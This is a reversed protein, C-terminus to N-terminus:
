STEIDLFTLIAHVGIKVVCKKLVAQVKHTRTKLMQVLRLLGRLIATLLAIEFISEYVEARTDFQDQFLTEPLLVPSKHKLVLILGGLPCIFRAFKEADV